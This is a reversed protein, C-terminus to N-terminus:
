IKKFARLQVPRALYLIMTSKIGRKSIGFQEEMVVIDMAKAKTDEHLKQKTIGGLMMDVM